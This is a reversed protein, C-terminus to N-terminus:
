RGSARILEEDIEGEDLVPQGNIWVKHIGFSKKQDPIAEKL